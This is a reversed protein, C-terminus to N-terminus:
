NALAHLKGASVEQWAQPGFWETYPHGSFAITQRSLTKKAERFVKRAWSVFETPKDQLNGDILVRPEFWFRGSRINGNRIFCRNVEILHSSAIHLWAGNFVVRALEEPPALLLSLSESGMKERALAFGNAPLIHDRQDRKVSMILQGGLPAFVRSEIAALDEPTCYYSFQQGM